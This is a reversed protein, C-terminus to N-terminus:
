VQSRQKALCSALRNYYGKPNYFHKYRVYLNALICSCNVLNPELSIMLCNNLSKQHEYRAKAWDEELVNTEVLVRLSQIEVKTPLVVESGYVLSYPTARTSARISNRYGWLAFRLKEAWDKYTVVM